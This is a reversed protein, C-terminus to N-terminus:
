IIDARLPRDSGPRWRSSAWAFAGGLLAGAVVDVVVHQKLALTSYTIAAFWALNVVRTWPPAGIQRLLLEVRIATFIAIGVHMSPCANGAADIGKMLDFGPFGMPDYTGSPVQTPWVYFLALGVVLLGGAWAGYALLDVFRPQLGPAIGVYVWLSVYAVLTQPWFPILHDLATAPVVIVPHVPHRLLHFYGIFFLWTWATTGLAKLVFLHGFRAAM